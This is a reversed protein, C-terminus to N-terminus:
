LNNRIKLALDPRDTIIGNVAYSLMFKKIREENNLTWVLVPIGRKQATKHLGFACLRWNPAVFDARCNRLRFWPYYETMKQVVFKIGRLNMLSDRHGIGLLLGCTVTPFREKIKMVVRDLFSKVIFNEPEFYQLIMGVVEEEYGAEKLEVDLRVRGELAKLVKDLREVTGGAAQVREEVDEWVAGRIRMGDVDADHYVVLVGDRTRRIDMEVLEAGLEFGKLFAEITNEQPMINGKEAALKLELPSPTKQNAKLPMWLRCGRHGIITNTKLQM